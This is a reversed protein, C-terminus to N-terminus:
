RKAGVELRELLAPYGPLIKQFRNEARLVRRRATSISLHCAEAIEILSMGELFRLVFVTRDQENLHELLSFFARVAEITEPPVSPGAREAAHEPAVPAGRRKRRRLWEQATFVAIGVLWSKLARPNQLDAIRELARVFVDHLLDTREQESYGIIRALVRHIYPGYRDFLVAPADPDRQWLAHTLEEDGQRTGDIRPRGDDRELVPSASVGSRRDHQLRTSCVHDQGGFNNM